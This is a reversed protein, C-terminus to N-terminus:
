ILIRGKPYKIYSNKAKGGILVFGFAFIGIRGAVMLLIVVIKGFTDFNASLSLIDGNGTSVGVTAFASVVEFLIKMFPFNQTQALILTSVLVMCSAGLIITIAKNITKQDITRKFIHPEQNSEKLTYVIAVVLVACTTIKMGGATGGQGGGIMMFITSFFISSESLAGLDISNFGSTRFNVSLFFSNLLKEYLSMNGFTNHNNYEIYLFLLMASFILFVTGYIMIKTHVSYEQDTAIKNQIEILAFYGLGGVIILLCLTMMITFDSKYSMISDNFLSFGANNFASVSHFVGYWVASSTDFDQMFRVSLIIAGLIEAGFVLIFIKKVFSSISKLDPLDLSEKVARKEEIQLNHKAFLFFLTVISMYGIGGIQILALIVSQGFTTYSDPTSTTILGTVCTASASTFLTDIFAVDQKNAIPLYLLVAGLFIIAVYGFLIANIYKYGM